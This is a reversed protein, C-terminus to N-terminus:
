QAPTAGMLWALAEAEDDFHRQVVRAEAALRSMQLKAAATTALVAARRRGMATARDMVGAMIARVPESQILTRRRDSLVDWPLGRLTRFAMMMGARYSEALDVSWLGWARIRLIRHEASVAIEFGAGDGEARGGPV